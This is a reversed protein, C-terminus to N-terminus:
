YSTAGERRCSEGLCVSTMAQNYKAEISDGRMLNDLERGMDGQVLAFGHEEDYPFSLVSGSFGITKIAKDIKCLQYPIV